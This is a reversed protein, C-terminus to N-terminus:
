KYYTVGRYKLRTKQQSKLKARELRITLNWAIAIKERNDLHWCDEVFERKHNYLFTIPDFVPKSESRHFLQKVYLLWPFNPNIRGLRSNGRYIIEKDITDVSSALLQQNEESYEIGRYILKM